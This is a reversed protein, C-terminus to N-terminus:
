FLKNRQHVTLAARSVTSNSFASVGSWEVWVRAVSCGPSSDLPSCLLPKGVDFLLRERTAHTCQRSPVFKVLLHNVHWDPPPSSTQVNADLRGAAVKFM